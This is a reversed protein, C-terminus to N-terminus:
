KVEDKKIRKKKQVSKENGALEKKVLEIRIKSEEIQKDIEEIWKKNRKKDEICIIIQTIIFTLFMLIAIIYFVVQVIM